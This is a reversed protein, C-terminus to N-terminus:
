AYMFMRDLEKQRKIYEMVKRALRIAEEESANQVTIQIAGKNFVVSNDTNGQTTYNNNNTTLYRQNNTDGQNTTYQTSNSPVLNSAYDMIKSALIGIWSTNKELPMVAEAGNEGVGIVSPKNFLGGQEYWSIGFKPVSPPSLSFSGSISIHPLKLKMVM